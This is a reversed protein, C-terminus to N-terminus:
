DGSGTADPISSPLWQGFCDCFTGAGQCNCGVARATPVPRLDDGEAVEGPAGQRARTGEGPGGDTDRLAIQGEEVVMAYGLQAYNILDGFRGLPAESVPLNPNCLISTIADVHKLMYVALVQGPTVGVRAAVSKFNKLVDADGITYGPRKATAVGDAHDLLERRVREFEEVHM